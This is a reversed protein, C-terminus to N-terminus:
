GQTASWTPCAPRRLLLRGATRRLVGRLGAAGLGRLPEPLRACHGARLPRPAGQPQRLGPLHDDDEFGLELARDRVQHFHAPTPAPASWPSRRGPGSGSWRSHRSCCSTTRTPGPNRRTSSSPTPCRSGRGSRRSTRVARPRTSPCSRPARSSGSRRRPSATARSSTM